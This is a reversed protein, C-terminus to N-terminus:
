GLGVWWLWLSKYAEGGPMNPALLQCTRDKLVLEVSKRSLVLYLQELSFVKSMLRTDKKKYRLPLHMIAHYRQLALVLLDNIFCSMEEM